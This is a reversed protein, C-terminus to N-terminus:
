RANRGNAAKSLDYFLLTMAIYFITAFLDAALAMRGHFFLVFAGMLITLMYYAGVFKARHRRATDAITQTM